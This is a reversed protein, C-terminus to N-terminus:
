HPETTGFFFFFFFFEYGTLSLVPRVFLSYIPSILSPRGELFSLGLFLDQCLELMLRFPFQSRLM